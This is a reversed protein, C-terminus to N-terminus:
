QQQEAQRAAIPATICNHLHATLLRSSAKYPSDPSPGPLPAYWRPPPASVGCSWLLISLCVVCPTFPDPAPPSFLLLPLSSSSHSSHPPTIHTTSLFVSLISIPPRTSLHHVHGFLHLCKMMGMFFIWASYHFTMVIFGFEETIIQCVASPAIM